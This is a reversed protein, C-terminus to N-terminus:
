PGPSRYKFIPSLSKLPLHALATEWLSYDSSVSLYFPVCIVSYSHTFPIMPQKFVFMPPIWFSDDQGHASSVFVLASFAFCSRRIDSQVCVSACILWKFLPMVLMELRACLLLEHLCLIYYRWHLIPASIIWMACPYVYFDSDWKSFGFLLFSCFRFIILKDYGQIHIYIPNFVSQDMSSCHCCDLLCFAILQTKTNLYMWDSYHLWLLFTKLLYWSCLVPCHM